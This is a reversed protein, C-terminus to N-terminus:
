GALFLAILGLFCFLVGCFPRIKNLSKLTYHDPVRKAFFISLFTMQGWWWSVGILGGLMVSPVLQWSPPHTVYVGTALLVAMATPLRMPMALARNFAIRFLMTASPLDGTDDLMEVRRTRFFKVAMYGLVFVAFVHMGLRLFSLHRSMMMLGPVSVFLWILQSLAFGLGVACVQRKTGIAGVKALWVTGPFLVLSLIFGATIGELM